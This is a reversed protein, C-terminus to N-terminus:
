VATEGYLIRMTVSGATYPVSRMLFFDLIPNSPHVSLRAIDLVSMGLASYDAAFFASKLAELRDWVLEDTLAERTIFYTTLQSEWAANALGWEGSTAPELELVAFPFGEAAADEFALREIETIRYIGNAVVDTWTAAITGAVAELMAHVDYAM